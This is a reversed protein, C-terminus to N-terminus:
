NLENGETRAAVHLLAGTVYNCTYLDECSRRLELEGRARSVSM